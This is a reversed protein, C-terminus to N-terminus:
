VIKKISNFNFSKNQPTFQQVFGVLTDLYITNFLVSTQIYNSKLLYSGDIQILGPESDDSHSYDSAEFRFDFSDKGPLLSLSLATLAQSNVCIQPSFAMFGKELADFYVETTIVKGNKMKFYPLDFMGSLQMNEYSYNLSGNAICNEGNLYLKTVEFEDKIM